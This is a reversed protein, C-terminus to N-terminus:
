RAEMTESAALEAARGASWTRYGGDLNRADVGHQVLLRAATHGRQGVQCYVVVPADPLEDLRERLEDLPIGLAGPIAGSAREADSRVDVVAAGDRQLAPLEHWQVTATTGTRVNDAVYGLQNIPDKAQGYQPAYALELRALGSATIGGAMAVALVDIRKDVGAGGVAQAGLIADDAPDILLKLAMREAGPFYAAHSMPHTHVARYPRGARQLRGESWGLSAATLGFVRVVTTGLAPSNREPRGAIVDAATRGHRNALGAMAVLADEGDLGIKEVGDGVAYVHPDSTRNQADVAIGGNAGLRLGAARALGTNPTAGSANVILRPRLLEGDSLRVADRDVSEIETSTRLEVGNARLEDEVLVALEPDLTALVHPCRHVLTTPVGRRVLNETAEIGIYGGGVVLATAAGDRPLLADIADVDDVTRLTHVPIGAAELPNASAGAALVLVDYDLEVLAGSRHDMVEVRRAARDIAIAEHQTRVDLRFRATLSEPTHLLLEARDEIEGGVYYPLGCNAYSVYSGQELVVIEASEDLRRLRTAASMGGAVGGIVIVRM